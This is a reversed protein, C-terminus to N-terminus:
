FTIGVLFEVQDQNSHLVGSVNFHQSTWRTYRLEPSIHLIIAHIEVGGGLVAGMVTNNTSTIGAANTVGMLTDWSVGAEVYPRVIHSPFKYKAVLPFEWVGSSGASVAANGISGIVNTYDFHRYLADFEVGFGAPLRLEIMPGVVYRNTTSSTQGNVTNLFDTLPLGLKVGAGIPQAFAITSASLLLLSLKM